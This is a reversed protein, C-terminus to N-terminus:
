PIMKINWQINFFDSINLDFPHVFLIIWITSYVIWITLFILIDVGEKPSFYWILLCIIVYTVLDLYNIIM